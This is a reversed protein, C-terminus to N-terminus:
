LNNGGNTYNVYSIDSCNIIKNLNYLLTEHKIKKNGIAKLKFTIDTRTKNLNIEKLLIDNATQEM